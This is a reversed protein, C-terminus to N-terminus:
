VVLFRLIAVPKKSYTTDGCRTPVVFEANGFRGTTAIFIGTDNTQVELVADDFLDISFVTRLIRKYQFLFPSCKFFIM